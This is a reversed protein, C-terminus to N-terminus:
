LHFFVALTKGQAMKIVPTCPRRLSCGPHAVGALFTELCPVLAKLRDRALGLSCTLRFSLSERPLEDLRQSNRLLSFLLAFCRVLDVLIRFTRNEGIQFSSCHGIM